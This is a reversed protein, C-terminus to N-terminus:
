QWGQKVAKFFAQWYPDESHYVMPKSSGNEHLLIGSSRETLYGVETCPINQLSLRKIINGAYEKKCAIILAGAGICYRPDLNFINCIAAQTHDVPLQNDYVIAGNGSATAMEYIAGLVGGETVDHMATIDNETEFNNVAILADKLVSTSYFSDCAAQFIESGTKNLVTKPFSKALIAASSLACSKTVLLCNGAEAMASTRIKGSPAIVTFTGGGAITSHQGEIFGTHGGTIQMQIATCYEHIYHWYNNFDTKSLTAPLNLVFQGYIPAFGTTAIDNAMLQVSLWASERLGLTPILSLPDSAQAMSLGNPLDVVSVDVGFAAGFRVEQRPFGCHNLISQEFFPHDIKGIIEAM